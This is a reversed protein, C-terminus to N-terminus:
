CRTGCWVVPRMSCLGVPLLSEQREQLARQHSALETRSAELEAMSVDPELPEAAAVPKEPSGGGCANDEPGGSWGTAPAGIDADGLGGVEAFTRRVYAVLDREPRLAGEADLTSLDGLARRLQVRLASQSGGLQRREASRLMEMRTELQQISSLACHLLSVAAEVSRWADGKPEDEAIVLSAVVGGRAAPRVGSPAAPSLPPEEGGLNFSFGGFSVSSSSM